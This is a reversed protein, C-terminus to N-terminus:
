EMNGTCSICDKNLTFHSKEHNVAKSRPLTAGTETVTPVVTRAGTKELAGFLSVWERDLEDQINLSTQIDAVYMCKKISGLVEKQNQDFRNIENQVM